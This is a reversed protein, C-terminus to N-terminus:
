AVLREEFQIAADMAQQSVEFQQAVLKKNKGEALYAEYLIDTRIGIDTVIPKGFAITPDLVVKKNKKPFWRLAREDVGFEIGEYLFPRIIKNFVIQKGRLDLLEPEGSEHLSEAFITKGDTQFRKCTFPYPSDFLERAHAAIIRITQLSVGHQHFAKVFRAELLDHFSLGDLESDALETKWLPPMTRKEEGRGSQYGRLWRRLNATSIGTLLAAEQFSYLGIGTLQM